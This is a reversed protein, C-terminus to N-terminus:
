AKTKRVFRVAETGAKAGECVAKAIQMMGGTCDGAAFLGPVSKLFISNHSYQHM